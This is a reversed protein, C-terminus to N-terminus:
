GHQSPQDVGAPGISAGSRELVVECLLVLSVCQALSLVEQRHPGDSEGTMTVSSHTGIGKKWM